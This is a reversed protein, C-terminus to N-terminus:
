TDASGESGPRGKRARSRLPPRLDTGGFGAARLQVPYEEPNVTETGSIRSDCYVVHVTAPYTQLIDNLEAQFQNLDAQGCGQGVNTKRTAFAVSQHLDRFLGTSRVFADMVFRARYRRFFDQM